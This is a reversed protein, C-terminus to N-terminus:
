DENSEKEMDAMCDTVFRETEEEPINAKKAANLCSQKMLSEDDEDVDKSSNKKSLYVLGILGAGAAIVFGYKSFIEKM